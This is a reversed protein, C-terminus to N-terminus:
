AGVKQGIYIIEDLWDSYVYEGPQKAQIARYEICKECQCRESKAPRLGLLAALIAALPQPPPGYEFEEYLPM